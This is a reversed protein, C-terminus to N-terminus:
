QMVRAKRILIKMRSSMMAIEQEPLTRFSQEPTEEQPPKPFFFLALPRKYIQYALKELQVYTPADDGMEWSEIIAIDKKMRRAAEDLSIGATERAWVLMAPNVPIQEKM